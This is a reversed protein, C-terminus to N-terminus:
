RIGEPQRSVRRGGEGEKRGGRRGGEGGKRGGRRGGEEREEGERGGAALTDSIFLPTMGIPLMGMAKESAETM